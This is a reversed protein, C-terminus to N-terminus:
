KPPPLQLPIGVIEDYRGAMYSDPAGGSPPRPGLAGTLANGVVQNYDGPELGPILRKVEEWTALRGNPHTADHAIYQPPLGTPHQTALMADIIERDATNVSMQHISSAGPATPEPGLWDNELSHGLMGIGPGVVKGAGPVFGAGTSLAQVTNEYALKNSQYASLQQHYGNNENAQWANHTGVDVLGRLTAADYLQGSYNPHNPDNAFAYEHQLAAAYAKESFYQSANQDSSLVSFINKATPLVGDEPRRPPDASDLPDGFEPLGGTMAINEVYPSLGHAMAQVLKSNWEGLTHNGPLKLLDNTHGLYDAYAHATQGAIQAEPGTAASETWSFLSGVGAGNDVWAHHTINKLFKEHDPGTVTDHVVQHDPSVASLVNSVAPDLAPDREVKRGSSAPDHQWIPTNMMASAKQIMARDLETNTQFGHDGDKVINAIDNVQRMYEVGSSKLSHQVSDPLQALGGKLNDSGQQAGVTLPTKPFTLNPNSMLQWSNGILGREDGLRQEANKLADISMGHEQAQLQSLVSAQEPTLPAKGALQDPTISSLVSKVRAAAGQNGALAERVDTEAQGPTETLHSDLGWLRTPDYGEGRLKSEANQLVHSYDDRVHELQQLAAKTDDVADREWADIDDQLDSIDAKLDAIEEQDDSEAIMREDENIAAEAWGIAEDLVKLKSELDAIYSNGTAQAQALAAAINELDAGINPLQTAQLGLAAITQQVDPAENIPHQGNDRTWTQLRRRAEAFANDAEQTSQGADHFAQALDGIRGPQGAQLTANIKWPDGRAFIILLAKSIHNFEM